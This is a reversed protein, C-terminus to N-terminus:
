VGFERFLEEIPRSNGNKIEDEADGARRELEAIVEPDNMWDDEALDEYVRPTINIIPMNIKHRKLQQKVKLLLSHELTGIKQKLRQKDIARIHFVLAITTADLGNKGSPAIRLTCPFRLAQLNTTCPIVVAISTQTDAIVIAPRLGSQEHGRLAPIEVIWLEGKRM